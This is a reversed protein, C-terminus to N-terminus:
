LFFSMYIYKSAGHMALLRTLNVILTEYYKPMKKAGCSCIVLDKLCVDNIKEFLSFSKKALNHSQNPTIMQM